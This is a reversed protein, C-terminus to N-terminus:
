CCHQKRAEAESAAIALRTREEQMALLHVAVRVSAAPLAARPEKVVDESACSVPSPAVTCTPPAPCTEAKSPNCHSPALPANRHLSTAANERGNVTASYQARRCRQFKTKGDLSQRFRQGEEDWKKQLVEMKTRVATQRSPHSEGIRGRPQMQHVGLLLKYAKHLTCFADHEDRRESPEAEAGTITAAPTSRKKDPHLVLAKARFAAKIDDVTVIGHATGSHPRFLLSSAPPPSAALGLVECASQYAGLQM